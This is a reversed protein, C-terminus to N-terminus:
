FASNFRAAKRMDRIFVIRPLDSKSSLVDKVPNCQSLISPSIFPVECETRCSWSWHGKSFNFHRKKDGTNLERTYYVRSQDAASTRRSEKLPHQFRRYNGVLYVNIKTNKAKRIYFLVFGEGFYFFIDLHTHSFIRYIACIIVYLWITCNSRIKRNIEKLLKLIM